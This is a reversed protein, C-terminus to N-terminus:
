QILGATQSLIFLLCAIILMGLDTLPHRIVYREGKVLFKHIARLHKRAWLIAIGLAAAISAYTLAGTWTSHGLTLQMRSSKIPPSLQSKPTLTTAAKPKNDNIQQASSDQAPPTTQNDAASPEATQEVPTSAAPASPTTQTPAAAAPPSSSPKTTSASLVQPKGYFAVVITMPGGGASTYNPSNAYGFGVESYTANLLNERHPPSAMWGDITSQEDSFGTALNQALAQYAYGQNNVWVWPPNGEPTYHSWYDRAAMDDANAQAAADLKSNLKLAPVGNALRQSNTDSLLGSITMSTAYALVRGGPHKVYAALSGSQSGISLLVGIILIIPIYPWYVKQFSHKNVGRPKTHHSVSNRNKIKAM